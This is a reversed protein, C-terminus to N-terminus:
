VSDVIFWDILYASV